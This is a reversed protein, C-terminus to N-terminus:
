NIVEFHAYIPINDYGREPIEGIRFRKTELSIVRSNKSDDIVQVQSNNIGTVEGTYEGGESFMSNNKFQGITGIEICKLIIKNM